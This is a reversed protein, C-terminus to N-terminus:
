ISSDIRCLNCIAAITAADSIPDVSTAAACPVTLGAVGGGAPTGGLVGIDGAVGGATAGVVGPVVPM